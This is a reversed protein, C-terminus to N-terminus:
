IIKLDKLRSILSKYTKFSFMRIQEPSTRSVMGGFNKHAEGYSYIKLTLDPKRFEWIKHQGSSGENLYILECNNELWGIIKDKSKM